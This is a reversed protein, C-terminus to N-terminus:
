AESTIGFEAAIQPWETLLKQVGTPKLLWYTTQPGSGEFLESYAELHDQALFWALKVLPWFELSDYHKYQEEFSAVGARWTVTRAEQYAPTNAAAESDEACFALLITATYARTPDGKRSLLFERNAIAHAIYYAVFQTLKALERKKAVFLSPVAVNLGQVEKSLFQYVTFTIGHKGKATFARFSSMYRERQCLTEYVTAGVLVNGGDAQDMIRQSMSIGAGAVNRRGNIDDVVNDINENIGIRVEFRRMPDSAARNHNAVSGLIDLALNLHTDVGPVDIMAIAMGDGTPIFVTNEPPVALSAVSKSVMTNLVAVLESQAEVSRNRTFGVIDLFVYQVRATQIVQAGEIGIPSVARM